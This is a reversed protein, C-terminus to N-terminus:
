VLETAVTDYFLVGKRTLRVVGELEQLFGEQILMSLADTTEQSFQGYVEQFQALNVGDLLRIRIALLERRSSEADLQESFDEPLVGKKLADCYRNLNAINRFRRGEWFSFASPGFGIFPRGIWYGTNHRSHYGEKAFASIEYQKLGMTELEECATEYMTLSDDDSPLLPQLTERRKFFVTHPEITLNYLSLHTIPWSKIQQLTDKWASVTQNPLDYMLDISVNDIGAESLIHVAEKSKGPTHLRDLVSLLPESLTQVGMSVRNIGAEKYARFLELTVNEPNAELTIEPKDSTFTCNKRVWDIIQAIKDPGLLSPTGGGFYITEIPHNRLQPQWIDWEQRLGEMYLEKFSPKDPIVYFHCYACKHTCFPIHFYLSAPKLIHRGNTQM